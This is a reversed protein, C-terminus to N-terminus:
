EGTEAPEPIVPVPDVFIAGECVSVLVGNVTLVFELTEVSIIDGIVRYKLADSMDAGIQRERDIWEFWNLFVIGDRRAPSFGQFELNVPNGNNKWVFQKGNIEEWIDASFCIASTLLVILLAIILKKM